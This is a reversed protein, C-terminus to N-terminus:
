FIIIEHNAIEWTLQFQSHKLEATFAMQQLIDEFQVQAVLNLKGFYNVNPLEVVFLLYLRAIICISQSM